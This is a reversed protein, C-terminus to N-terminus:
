TPTVLNGAANVETPAADALQEVVATIHDGLIGIDWTGERGRLRAHRIIVDM